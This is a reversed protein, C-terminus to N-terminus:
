HVFYQQELTSLTQEFIESHSFKLLSSDGNLEFIKMSKIYLDGGIVIKDLTNAASNKNPNLTLKWVSDRQEFELSFYSQLGDIDATIISKLIQGLGTNQPLTLQKYSSKKSTKEYIDNDVLLYATWVPSTYELYLGKSEDFLIRGSSILPKKLLTINKEQEFEYRVISQQQVRSLTENLRKKQNETLDTRQELTDKAFLQTSAGLFFIVVVIHLANFIVKM